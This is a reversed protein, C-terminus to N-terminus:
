RGGSRHDHGALTDVRARCHASRASRTAAPHARRDGRRRDRDRHFSCGSGSTRAVREARAVLPAAQRHVPRDRVREPRGLARTVSLELVLGRLRRARLRIHLSLLEHRLRMSCRRRRLAPQRQARDGPLGGSEETTHVAAQREPRSAHPKRTNAKSARPDRADAERADAECADAECADARVAATQAECRAGEADTGCRGDRGACRDACRDACRPRFRRGSGQVHHDQWRWSRYTFSM